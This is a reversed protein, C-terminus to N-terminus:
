VPTYYAYLWSARGVHMVSTQCWCSLLCFLTNHWGKIYREAMADPSSHPNCKLGCVWGSCTNIPKYGRRAASM